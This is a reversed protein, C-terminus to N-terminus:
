GNDAEKEKTGNAFADSLLKAVDERRYFLKRGVKAYPLIGASRWTQVTRVSVHLREMLEVNDVWETFPYNSLDKNMKKISKFKIM